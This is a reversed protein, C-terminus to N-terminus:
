RFVRTGGALAIRVLQSLSKVDLTKMISIRCLEVERIDLKLSGAIAKNTMGAVVGSLVDREQRTLRELAAVAAQDLDNESETKLFQQAKRLALVFLDTAIPKRLTGVITLQAGSRPLSHMDDGILIVPLAAGSAELRELLTVLPLELSDIEAVLCGLDLTQVIALFESVSSFSKVPFGLNLCSSLLADCTVREGVFYVTGSTKEVNRDM